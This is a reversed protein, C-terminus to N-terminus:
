KVEFEIKDSKFEFLEASVWYKGPEALVKFTQQLNLNFYGSVIYDGGDTPEDPAPPLTHADMVPRGPAEAQDEAGVRIIIKTLPEDDARQNMEGNAGYKGHLVIPKGVQYASGRAPPALQIAVGIEDLDPTEPVENYNPYDTASQPM